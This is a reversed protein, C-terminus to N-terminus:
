DGAPEPVEAVSGDAAITVSACSPCGEGTLVAELTWSAAAEDFASGLRGELWTPFCRPHRESLVESFRLLERRVPLGDLTPVRYAVLRGPTNEVYVLFPSGAVWRGEPARGTWTIQRKGAATM